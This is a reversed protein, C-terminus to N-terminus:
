RTRRHRNKRTIQNGPWLLRLMHKIYTELLIYHRPRTYLSSAIIFHTLLCGSDQHLFRIQRVHDVGIADKTFKSKPIIRMLVTEDSDPKSATVDIKAKSKQLKEVNYDRLEMLLEAKKMLVAATEDNM